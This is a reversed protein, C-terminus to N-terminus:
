GWIITGDVKGGFFSESKGPLVPHLWHLSHIFIMSIKTNMRVM